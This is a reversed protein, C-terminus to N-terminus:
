AQAYLDKYTIHYRLFEWLELSKQMYKATLICFIQTQNQACHVYSPSKKVYIASICRLKKQGELHLEGRDGRWMIISVFDAM